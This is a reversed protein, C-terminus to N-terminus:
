PTVEITLPGREVLGAWPLYEGSDPGCTCVWDGDALLRWVSDRRDTVRATPDTPEVQTPTAFERLAAQMDNICPQQTANEWKWGHYISLLREVQAPDEADIVALRRLDSAIGAIQMSDGGEFEGWQHTLLQVIGRGHKPHQVVDGPKFNESM